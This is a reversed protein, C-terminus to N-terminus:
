DGVGTIVLDVVDALERAQETPVPRSFTPKRQRVVKKIAWRDQLLEALGDLIRDSNHKTSHLLGLTKGNLDRDRRSALSTAQETSRGTPNLLVPSM